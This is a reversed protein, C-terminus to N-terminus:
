DHSLQVRGCVQNKNLDQVCREYLEASIKRRKDKRGKIQSVPCYACDWNCYGSIELTIAKVCYKFVTERLKALEHSLDMFLETVYHHDPFMEKLIRNKQTDLLYPLDERGGAGTIELFQFCYELFAPTHKAIQEEDQSCDEDFSSYIVFVENAFM